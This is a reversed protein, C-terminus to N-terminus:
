KSEHVMGWTLEMMCSRFLLHLINEMYQACIYISANSSWVHYFFFVFTANDYEMHRINRKKDKKLKSYLSIYIKHLSCPYLSFCFIFIFSVFFCYNMQTM